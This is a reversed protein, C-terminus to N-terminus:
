CVSLEAKAGERSLRSKTTIVEIADSGERSVTLQLSILSVPLAHSNEDTLFLAVARSKVTLQRLRHLLIQPMKENRGVLDFVVCKVKRQQLLLEATRIGAVLSEPQLLTMKDLAIGASLASLPFFSKSFDVYLVAARHSIGALLQLMVSTKGSSVGGTIELLQGAPIGIRPFLSQLAPTEVPFSESQGSEGLYISEPWQQDILEQIRSATVRTDDHIKKAATIM